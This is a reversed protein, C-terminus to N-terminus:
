VLAGSVVVENGVPVKQWTFESLHPLIIDVDEHEEFALLQHFHM